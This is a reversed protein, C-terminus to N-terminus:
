LRAYRKGPKQVVRGSLELECLVGLLGASDMGTTALLEEFLCETKLQELVHRAEESLIELAEENEAPKERQKEAGECVFSTNEFAVCEMKGEREPSLFFPAASEEGKLPLPSVHAEGQARPFLSFHPLKQAPPLPLSLSSIIEDPNQALHAEKKKLLQLCGETQPNNIEGPLVWLPRWQELAYRATILSGSKLPARLVVVADASASILRNRRPFTSKDSQVGPPYETFYAGGKCMCKEWFERQSFALCDLGCGVFAWAKGAVGMAARLCIQDVGDAAGSVVLAGAQAIRAAFWSATPLFSAEPYRTGVMAIKPTAVASTDGWAFLVPPVDGLVELGAPFGEEGRFLLQMHSRQAEEQVREGM